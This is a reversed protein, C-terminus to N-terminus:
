CVREHKGTLKLPKGLIRHFCFSPFQSVYTLIKLIHKFMIEYKEM